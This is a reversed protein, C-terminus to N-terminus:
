SSLEHLADHSGLDETVPDCSGNQAQRNPPAAGRDGMRGVGAQQGARGSKERAVAALWNGFLREAHEAWLRKRPRSSLIADLHEAFNASKACACERLAELRSIMEADFYGEPIRPYDEREHSLFRLVDRRYERSLTEADYEPHGQLFVFLSPERRWFVDLGVTASCSSVTYGRREVEERDLGNHRSHPVRVAPPSGRMLWDNPTTSFAYVGSIKTPARRREVGDLHLAAGHAALCSWLASLTNTRAWDILETFEAWYSEDKLSSARPEAGTVILVDAGNAYLVSLDNHTQELYRRARDSRSVGQLWYGRMRSQRNGVGARALRAFQEWTAALAQDGMNNVLAIEITDDAQQGPMRDACLESYM